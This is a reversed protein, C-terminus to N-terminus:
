SVCETKSKNLHVLWRKAVYFSKGVFQKGNKKQFFFHRVKYKIRISKSVIRVWQLRSVKLLTIPLCYRGRDSAASRPTQDPDERNAFSKAM